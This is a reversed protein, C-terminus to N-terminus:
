YIATKTTLWGYFLGVVVGRNRKRWTHTWANEYTKKALSLEAYAISETNFKSSEHWMITISYCIFFTVFVPFLRLIVNM